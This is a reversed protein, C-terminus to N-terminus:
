PVGGLLQTTLRPGELVALYLDAPRVALGYQDWLRIGIQIAENDSPEDWSAAWNDAGPSRHPLKRSVLDSGIQEIGAGGTL